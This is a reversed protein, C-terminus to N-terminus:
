IASTLDDLFQHLEKKLLPKLIRKVKKHYTNIWTIEDSTLMEINILSMDIPCLTLSEFGYFTGFQTKQKEICVIMNEIRIGYEGERYLGPENSLIMGPEISNENFDQRIAMPGEHVNLFHGVGHGTGHGYNLGKEWLAKRALIDLHAGKTGAPFIANTLAIMGKLVLTYDTKQQESIEGLVITRTIDTTGELYQGGSDFLLIGEAQLTLADNEDVSLHVIAGHHKYGFIPHFSEGKFEPQKSRYEKLKIGASYETIKEKQLNAKLWALFEILAIGDKIMANQFGDIEVKNKRAKLHSAVSTGEILKNNENLANYISYSATEFDVCIKKGKVSNLFSYFENYSRLEINDKQLNVTLEASLKAKDIFLISKEKEVWGYGTFVPNYQIDNGRLNLLWALEDLMSIVHVDASKNELQSMVLGHKEKRSLGTIEVPLEFVPNPSLQPRDRWIEDLLDPVKILTINRVILTNEFSRFTAISVTQADVGVKSEPKLNQALWNEPSIAGQVRLKQMQIGTGKLQQEAQLFYRSDTWLLAQNRTIVIVGYSGSFGSIFARTQWRDPLYESSHPDSGSIYYADLRFKEMENRLAAIRQQIESM